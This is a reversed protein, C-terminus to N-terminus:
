RAAKKAKHAAWRKKQADSIRKRAEASMRRPGRRRPAAAAPPAPETGSAVVRARSRKAAEGRSGRLDPFMQLISERESELQQLRGIAGLRALQKMDTAAM